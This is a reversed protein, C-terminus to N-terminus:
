KLQTRLYVRFQREGCCDVILMLKTTGKTILTRIDRGGGKKERERTKIAILYTSHRSTYNIDLMIGSESVSHKRVVVIELRQM